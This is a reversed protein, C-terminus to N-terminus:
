KTDDLRRKIDSQIVKTHKLTVCLLVHFIFKLMFATLNLIVRPFHNSFLMCLMCFFAYTNCLMCFMCLM